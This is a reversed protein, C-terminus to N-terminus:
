LQILHFQFQDQMALLRLQVEQGPLVLHFQNEIVELEEAAQDGVMAEQEVVLLL